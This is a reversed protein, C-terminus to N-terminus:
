KNVVPVPPLPPLTSVPPPPLISAVPEAPANAVKQRAHDVLFEGISPTIDRLRRELGVKELLRSLVASTKGYLDLDAADAQGNAAFTGEIRELETALV